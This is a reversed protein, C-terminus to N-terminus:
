KLLSKLYAIVQDLKREVDMPDTNGYWINSVQKSESGKGWGGLNVSIEVCNVHGHIWVFVDHETTTSVKAGLRAIEAIKNFIAKEQKKTREM